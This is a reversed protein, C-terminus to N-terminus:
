GGPHFGRRRRTGTHGTLPGCAFRAIGLAGVIGCPGGVSRPHRPLTVHGRVPLAGIGRGATRLLWRLARGALGAALLTPPRLKARWRGSVRLLLSWMVRLAIRRRHPWPKLVALGARTLLRVTSGVAARWWGATGARTLLAWAWRLLAAWLAPRLLTPRHLTTGPWRLLVATGPLRWWRSLKSLVAAGTMAAWALLARALRAYAVETLTGTLRPLPLLARTLRPLPLLTGALLAWPLRPLPLM